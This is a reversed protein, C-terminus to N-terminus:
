KKCDCSHKKLEEIEAKLEKIAELLIPAIGQHRMSLMGDENERVLDPVVKQVDQAIFGIDEKINLIQDEKQIWDFTVGELKMVKDLASEIPKINEKLRKDSPSGYAVLDGTVTVSGSTSLAMKTSSGFNWKFIGSSASLNFSYGSSDWYQQHKVTGNAKSILGGSLDTRSSNVSLSNTNASISTPSTDGIGVNGGNFYSDNDSSIFAGIVESSNYISLNASNGSRGVFFNFRQEGNDARFRVHRDINNDGTASNTLIDLRATPSTSGIGVNGSNLVTVFSNNIRAAETNLSANTARGIIFRDANGYTTGTYWTTDTGQNYMFVGQGRAEPTSENSSQLTIAGQTYNSGNGNFYAAIGGGTNVTLRGTATVEGSFTSADGGSQTFAADVTVAGNFYSTGQNYFDFSTNTAGVYIGPAQVDGSFTSNAGIKTENIVGGAYFYQGVGSAGYLVINETADLSLYSQQTSSSGDNNYFSLKANGANTKKLRLEPSASEGIVIKTPTNIDDGASIEGAFTSNGSNDITLRPTWTGSERSEIKFAGSVVAQRFTDNTSGNDAGIYFQGGDVYMNDRAIVINANATAAFTANNGDLFLTNNSGGNTQFYMRANNSVVYSYDSHIAELRISRNGATANLHTRVSTGTTDTNQFTFSSTANQNKSATIQGAFTSDNSSFTVPANGLTVSTGSGSWGAFSGGTGSGSLVSSNDIKEWQDSAGQEIFVAWDGVQWDTIGDLNTTGATSVIYFNGTTGSGSTLTPSNTSANWTGQFVLGAPITGIVNQVFATTAVTTDNTSNGKTTATTVTNITGNLDGSFTPATVTAAFTADGGTDISFAVAGSTNVQFSDNGGFGFKTNADGVHYIYDPIWVASAFTANQNTDLTLAPTSGATRFILEGSANTAAIYNAGARAMGIFASNTDGITVDGDLFSTGTVSINGAFTANQSSDLILATLDATIFNLQDTAPAAIGLGANGALQIAAITSSGTSTTIIKGAFTANGSTNILLRNSSADEDRIVFSGATTSQLLYSKGTGSTINDIKLITDATSQLHLLQSPDTIGIGVYGTTQEVVFKGNINSLNAM